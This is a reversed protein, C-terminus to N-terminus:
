EEKVEPEAAEEEKPEEPTEPRLWKKLGDTAKEALDISKDKAQEVAKQVDPNAKIEETKEHVFEASRKAADVVGEKVNHLTKSLEENEKVKDVVKNAADSVNGKFTNLKEKLEEDHRIEDVKKAAADVAEGTKEKLVDFKEQLKADKVFEKASKLFGDFGSRKATKVKDGGTEEATNELDIVKEEDKNTM